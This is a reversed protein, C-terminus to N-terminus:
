EKSVVTIGWIKTFLIGFFIKVYDWFSSSVYAGVTLISPGVYEELPHFLGLM